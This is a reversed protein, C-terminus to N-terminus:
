KITCGEHKLAPFFKALLMLGPIIEGCDFDIVMRKNMVWSAAFDPTTKSPMKRSVDKCLRSLIRKQNVKFEDYDDGSPNERIEKYPTVFHLGLRIVGKTSEGWERINERIDSLQNVNMEQWRQILRADKTSPTMFADYSHKMEIAFSYDKYICWYDIRGSSDYDGVRKGKSRRDVPYETIVLGKTMLAMQPLVVSDLQRERYAFPFDVVNYKGNDYSECRKCIGVFLKKTFDYAVHLSEDEDKCSSVILDLGRINTHRLLQETAEM